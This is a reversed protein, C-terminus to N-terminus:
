ETPHRLSRIMQLCFDMLYQQAQRSTLQVDAKDDGSGGNLKILEQQVNPGVFPYCIICNGLTQSFVIAKSMSIDAYETLLRAMPYIVNELISENLPDALGDPLSQGNLSFSIAYRNHPDFAIELQTHLYQQLYGFCTEPTLTGQTACEEVSNAIPTYYLEHYKLIDQIVAACLNEKTVFYFSIASQSCHAEQAIMRTTVYDYTKTGFLKKAAGIIRIRTKEGKTSKMREIGDYTFISPELPAPMGLPAFQLLVCWASLASLLVIRPFLVAKQASKEQSYKLSYVFILTMALGFNIKENTRVILQLIFAIHITSLEKRVALFSRFPYFLKSNGTQLQFIPLFKIL